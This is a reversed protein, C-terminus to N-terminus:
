PPFLPRLRPAVRPSRPWRARRLWARRRRRVPSGPRAALRRCPSRRRASVSLGRNGPLLSNQLSLRRLRRGSVHFFAFVGQSDLGKATAWARVPVPFNRPRDPIRPATLVSITLTWKERMKEMTRLCSRNESDIKSAFPIGCANPLQRAFDLASGCGDEDAVIRQLKIHRPGAFNALAKPASPLPFDTSADSCGVRAFGSASSSTMTTLRDPRAQVVPENGPAASSAWSLALAFVVGKSM